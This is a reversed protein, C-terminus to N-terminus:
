LSVAAGAPTGASMLTLWAASDEVVAATPLSFLFAANACSGFTSLLGRLLLPLPVLPVPFIARLATRPLATCLFLFAGACPGAAVLRLFRRCSLPLPTSRNRRSIALRMDQVRTAMAALFLHLSLPLPLARPPFSGNKAQKTVWRREMQFEEKAENDM